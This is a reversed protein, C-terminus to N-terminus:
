ILNTSLYHICLRIRDEIVKTKLLFDELTASFMKSINDWVYMSKLKVNYLTRDHIKWENGVWYM